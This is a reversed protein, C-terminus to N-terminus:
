CDPGELALAKGERGHKEALLKSFCLKMRMERHGM